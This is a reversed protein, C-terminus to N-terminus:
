LLSKTYRRCPVPVPGTPTAAEYTFGGTDHWGQREYFRRARANGPVVALWAETFGAAAIQREAEALLAAALGSGRHGAAVYVQEAEDASVIVFGAVEGRVVAVTTGALHAAARVRFSEPTRLAALTEPVHGLHGDRWGQTWLEAIAETDATTAARLEIETVTKIWGQHFAV